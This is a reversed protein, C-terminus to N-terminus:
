KGSADIENNGDYSNWKTDYEDFNQMVLTVM